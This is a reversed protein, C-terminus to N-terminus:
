IFNEIFFDNFSYIYFFILEYIKFKDVISNASTESM